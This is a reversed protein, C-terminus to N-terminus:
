AESVFRKRVADLIDPFRDYMHVVPFAAKSHSDLIVGNECIVSNRGGEGSLTAIRGPNTLAQIDVSFSGEFYMRNFLAQEVKGFPAAFFEAHFEEVMRQIASAPGVIVGVCLPTKGEFRSWIKRGFARIIWQSNEDNGSMPESDEGIIVAEKQLDDFASAQFVVDKVDCLAVNAYNRRFSLFDRYANWRIIHPHQWAEMLAFYGASFEPSFRSFRSRSLRRLVEILIRRTYRDMRGVPRGYTSTTKVLEASTEHALKDLQLTDNTILVIDVESEPHAARASRLFIAAADSTINTAFGLILNKM